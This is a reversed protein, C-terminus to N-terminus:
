VMVEGALINAVRYALTRKHLQYQSLDNINTLFFLEHIIGGGTSVFGLRSHQGSGEPKTGRNRIYLTDSTIDCLSESLINSPDSCLTEVGGATPNGAANCHWEVAIDHDKAAAIATRLPLNQGPAGDKDFEIRLARLEEAVLDRFELVIQAETYGNAVAGPDVDSHGASIFLSRIQKPPPVYESTMLPYPHVHIPQRIARGLKSLFRFMGIKM